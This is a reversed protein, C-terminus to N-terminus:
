RERKERSLLYLPLDESFESYVEREIERIMEEIKRKRRLKRKLERLVTKHNLALSAKEEESTNEILWVGYLCADLKEYLASIRESFDAVRIARKEGTERLKKILTKSPYYTLLMGGEDSLRVGRGPVILLSLGNIEGLYVIERLDASLVYQLFDELNRRVRWLHGDLLEHAVREIKRLEVRHERLIRKIEAKKRYVYEEFTLGKERKLTM